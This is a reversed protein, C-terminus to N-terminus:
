SLVKFVILTQDDVPEVGECHFALAHALTEKIEEASSGNCNKLARELSSYDFEEGKRNCADLVGDTLFIFADGPM